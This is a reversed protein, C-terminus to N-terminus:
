VFSDISNRKTTYVEEWVETEEFYDRDILKVEKVRTFQIERLNNILDALQVESTLREIIKHGLLSIVDITVPLVHEANDKFGTMLETTFKEEDWHSLKTGPGYDTEVVMKKLDPLIDIYQSYFRGSRPDFLEMWKEWGFGLTHGIEHIITGVIEDETYRNLFETNFEIRGYIVKNQKFPEYARAIVNGLSTFIGLRIVISSNPIVFKNWFACALKAASKLKRNRDAVIKYTILNEM